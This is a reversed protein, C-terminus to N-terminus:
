SNGKVKALSCEWCLSNVKVSQPIARYMGWFKAVHLYFLPPIRTLKLFVYAFSPKDILRRNGSSRM